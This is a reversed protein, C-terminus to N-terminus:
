ARIEIRHRERPNRPHDVLEPVQLAGALDVLAVEAPRACEPIPTELRRREPRQRRVRRFFAADLVRECQSGLGNTQVALKAASTTDRLLEAAAGCRERDGSAGPGSSLEEGARFDQVLLHARAHEGVHRGLFFVRATM